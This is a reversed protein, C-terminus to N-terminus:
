TLPFATTPSWLAEDSRRRLSFPQIPWQQDLIPLSYKRMWTALEKDFSADAEIVKQPQGKMRWLTPLMRLGILPHMPYPLDPVDNDADMVAPVRQFRYYYTLVEDPASHLQVVYNDLVATYATGAAVATSGNAEYLTAQTDSDVTNVTFLATGIKLKTGKGFGEATTWATSSGTLTRSNAPLSVTGTTYTKTAKGQFVDMSPIGLATPSPYWEDFETASLSFLAIGNEAQRIRKQSDVDARLLYEDKFITYSAAANTTGQFTQDLVIVTTSIFTKITYSATGGSVRFKRGVMGATFTTGTGTVTASGDTVSVTGTTYEAVTQFWDTTWLFPWEHLGCIHALSRNALRRIFDRISTTQTVTETDAVIDIFREGAM